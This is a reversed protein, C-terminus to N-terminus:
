LAELNESDFDSIISSKLETDADDACPGPAGDFEYYRDGIKKAVRQSTPTSKYRFLNVGPKCSTDTLLEPKITFRAVADFAESPGHSLMGERNEIVYTVKDAHETKIKIGWEAIDISSEETDSDEVNTTTSQSNTQNSSPSVAKDKKSWVLWGVAALLTVIVIILIGEVASFGKQNNRLSM